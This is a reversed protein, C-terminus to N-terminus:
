VNALTDMAIERHSVMKKSKRIYLYIRSDVSVTTTLWKHQYRHTFGTWFSYNGEMKVSRVGDLIRIMAHANSPHSENVNQIHYNRGIDTQVVRGKAKNHLWCNRHNFPNTRVFSWILSLMAIQLSAVTCAISSVFLGTVWRCCIRPGCSLLMQFGCVLASAMNSVLACVWSEVQVPSFTSITNASAQLDLRLRTWGQEAEFSWLMWSSCRQNLFWRGISLM